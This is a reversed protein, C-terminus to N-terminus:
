CRGFSKLSKSGMGPCRWQRNRALGEYISVEAMRPLRTASNPHVPMENEQMRTYTTTYTTSAGHEAAVCPLLQHRDAFSVFAREIQSAMRSNLFFGIASVADRA